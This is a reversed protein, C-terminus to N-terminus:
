TTQQEDHVRKQARYVKKMLEYIDDEGMTPDIHILVAPSGGFSPIYPMKGKPFEKVKGNTVTSVINRKAANPASSRPNNSPADISSLEIGAQQCLWIFLGAAKAASQKATGPYAEDLIISEEIDKRSKSSLDGDYLSFLRHYATEVIRRLEQQYTIDSRIKGYDETTNGKGDIINLFKLASVSSSADFQKYEWKTLTDSDIRRLQYQRIKYLIESFAKVSAYPAKPRTNNIEETM